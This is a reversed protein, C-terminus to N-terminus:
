VLEVLDAVPWRTWLEDLIAVESSEEDLMALAPENAVSETGSDVVVVSGRVSAPADISLVLSALTASITSTQTVDALIAPGAIMTGWAPMGEEAVAGSFDASESVAPVPAPVAAGGARGAPTSLERVFGRAAEQRWTGTKGMEFASETTYVHDGQEQKSTGAPAQGNRRPKDFMDTRYVQSMAALGPQATTHIYGLAATGNNVGLERFYSANRAGRKDPRGLGELFIAEGVSTTLYRYGMDTVTGDDNFQEAFYSRYLPATALAAPLASLYVTFGTFADTSRDQYGPTAALVEFEAQLTYVNLQANQNFTRFLRAEFYVQASITQAGFAGGATSDARGGAVGAVAPDWTRYTLGNDLKTEIPLFGSATSGTHHPKLGTLFRLRATGPLLLANTASLPGAADVATWDAAQPNAVLTYEWRGLSTDVASLAIAGAVGPATALLTSVLQGNKLENPLRDGVAAVFYPKGSTDAAPVSGVPGPSDVKRNAGAVMVNFYSIPAALGGGSFTVSYVGNPVEIRYGGATMTTATLPAGTAPTVTVTVGGLGEGATYRGDVNTDNYAVGTIYTKPNFTTGFNHAVALPGVQKGSQTQAIVSVGVETFTKSMISKRHGLDPVGWDISLGSHGFFVSKSFSFLNEGAGALDNYGAAAIRTGLDAEGPFDHNQADNQLVLLNHTRTSNYLAENWSLPAVASLKQWEPIFNASNVNFADMSTQSEADFSTLPNLSRFLTNLHGQPDLRMANMLELTEQEQATPDFALVRRTELTEFEVARVCSRRRASSKALVRRVAGAWTANRM